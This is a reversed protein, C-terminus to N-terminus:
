VARRLRQARERLHEWIRDLEATIAQLREHQHATREHEALELLETEERCLGEVHGYLEIQTHEHRPGGSQLPGEGGPFTSM